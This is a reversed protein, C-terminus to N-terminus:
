KNCKFMLFHCMNRGVGRKPYKNITINLPHIGFFCYKVEINNFGIEKLFIKIEQEYFEQIHVYDGLEINYGIKIPFNLKGFILKLLNTPRFLNPTGFLLIGGKKLVRYQESLFLFTKEVHEIVDQHFILDFYEDAFPLPKEALVRKFDWDGESKLIAMGDKDVPNEVIDTAIINTINKNNLFVLHDWVGDGVSVSLAISNKPMTSKKIWDIFCNRQCIEIPSINLNELRSKLSNLHM